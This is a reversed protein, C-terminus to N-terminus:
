PNVSYTRSFYNRTDFRRGAQRGTRGNPELTTILLEIESLRRAQTMVMMVISPKRM